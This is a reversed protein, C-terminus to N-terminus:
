PNPYPRIPFPAQGKKINVVRIGTTYDITDSTRGTEPAILVVSKFFEKARQDKSAEEAAKLFEEKTADFVVFEPESPKEREDSLPNTALNAIQESVANGTARRAKINAKEIFTRAPQVIAVIKSERAEIPRNM